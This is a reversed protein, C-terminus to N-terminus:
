PAPRPPSRGRGWLAPRPTWGQYGHLCKKCVIYLNVDAGDLPGKNRKECFCYCGCIRQEHNKKAQVHLLENLDLGIGISFLTFM